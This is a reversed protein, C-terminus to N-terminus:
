RSVNIKVTVGCEAGVSVGWFCQLGILLICETCFTYVFQVTVYKFLCMLTIVHQVYCTCVIYLQGASAPQRRRRRHGDGIAAAATRQRRRRRRRRRQQAKAGATQTLYDPFAVFAVTARDPVCSHPRKFFVDIHASLSSALLSPTSFPIASQDPSSFIQFRLCPATCFKVWCHPRSLLSHPRKQRESM